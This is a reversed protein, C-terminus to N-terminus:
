PLSFGVKRTPAEKKKLKGLVYEEASRSGNWYVAMFVHGERILRNAEELSQAKVLEEIMSQSGESICSVTETGCSGGSCGGM